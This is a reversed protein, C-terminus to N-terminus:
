ETKEIKCQCNYGHCELERSQPYIGEDRLARWEAATRVKDAQEACTDCHDVTDGYRWVYNQNDEGTIIKAQNAVDTYRGAWLSARYRFQDIPKNDRRAQAIDAAFRDVYDYEATVIDQYAQEWEPTIEKPDLGNSRMGENFARRLQQAILDAQSNVFDSETIDGSYLDTVLKNLVRSYHAETKTAAALGALVDLPIPIDNVDLWLCAYEIATACVGQWPNITCRRVINNPHCLDM